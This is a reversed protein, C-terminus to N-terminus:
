PVYFLFISSKLINDLFMCGGIDMDQNWSVTVTNITTIHEDSVVRNTLCKYVSNNSTHGHVSM